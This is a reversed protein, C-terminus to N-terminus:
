ASLIIPPFVESTEITFKPLHLEERAIVMLLQPQWRRILKFHNGRKGVKKRKYDYDKWRERFDSWDYSKKKGSASDLLVIRSKSAMYGSVVAWHGSEPHPREREDRDYLYTVMVARIQNSRYRLASQLHHLTAYEVVLVWFGLKNVASIMNKTTTGNRNTKCLQALSMLSRRKGLVALGLKLAAPGCTTDDPQQIPVVHSRGM